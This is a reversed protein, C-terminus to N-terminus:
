DNKYLNRVWSNFRDSYNLWKVFYQKRKGRGRTKIVKEVEWKDPNSVSQLEEQYFRGQIVDGSYDKLIYLPLGNRKYRRKITFIEDTFYGKEFHHKYKSARVTDGVDFKYNIKHRKVNRINRVKEANDFTVDAPAMEISRHKRRNYGRLISPLTDLYSRTNKASFHKYIKTKLTRIVREAISAKTESNHATYFHIGEKKLFAKTLKSKFEVGNDTYLSYPTREKFVKKFAAIVTSPKKNVLPLAWCYCSFSDIVVLLCRVGSNYKSVNSMDALDAQFQQDIQIVETHRRPFRKRMPKHLTYAKQKKLWRVIQFKRIGRGQVAQHLDKVSGYGAPHRPDYYIKRLIASM